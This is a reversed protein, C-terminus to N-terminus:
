DAAHRGARRQQLWTPLPRPTAPRALLPALQGAIAHAFPPPVSNGILKVQTDRTLPKGHGDEDLVYSDPFGQARKLEQPALMRLTIDRIICIKDGIIRGLAQGNQSYQRAEPCHAIVLDHIAQARTREDPTLGRLPDHLATTMLTSKSQGSSVITGLPDTASNATSQGFQRIICAANILAHRNATTQTPMPADLGSSRNRGQEGGYYTNLAAINLTPLLKAQALSHHDVTTITAAPDHVPICHANPNRRAGTTTAADSYYKSIFAASYVNGATVWRQTSLGFPNGTSPRAPQGGATITALPERVDRGPHNKHYTLGHATLLQLRNHQTTITPSPAGLPAPANDHNNVLLAHAGSPVIYPQEANLIHQYTGIAIRRLSNDALITPRTPDLISKAELHFQLVTHVGVWPQLEGSLVRPDSAPAHTPEPWTFPEHDRSAILFLRKRTTPAGYDAANLEKWEVHYGLREISAVFRKWHRNKRKPHPDPKLLIRGRKDRQVAGGKRKAILPGWSTSIAKVNEMIVFRPRTQAIWRPVVWPLARLGQNIPASGKAPSYSRCDPSAWLVDVPRGQTAELPDVEFVDSLYHRTEPCNREHVSIAKPNHNVAVSIPRGLGTKLGSSAGGAGAFLDVILADMDHLQRSVLLDDFLPQLTHRNSTM